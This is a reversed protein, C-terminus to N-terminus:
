EDPREYQDIVEAKRRRYTEESILKEARLKRLDALLV